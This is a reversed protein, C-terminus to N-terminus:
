LTYTRTEECPDESELVIPSDILGWRILYSSQISSNLPSPESLDRNLDRDVIHNFHVSLTKHSNDANVILNSCRSLFVVAM